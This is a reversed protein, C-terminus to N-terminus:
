YSGLQKRSEGARRVGGRLPPFRGAAPERGLREGLERGSRAEGESLPGPPTFLFGVPFGLVGTPVFFGLCLGEARGQITCARFDHPFKVGCGNCKNFIPSKCDNPMPKAGKQLQLLICFGSVNVAMRRFVQALPFPILFGHVPLTIGHPNAAGPFCSVRGAREPLTEATPPRRAAKGRERATDDGSRPKVERNPIPLPAWEDRPRGERSPTFASVVAAACLLASAKPGNTGSPEVHRWARVQPRDVDDDGVARLPPRM